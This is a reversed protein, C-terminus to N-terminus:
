LFFKLVEECYIEFENLDIFLFNILLNISFNLIHKSFDFKTKFNNLFDSDIEM